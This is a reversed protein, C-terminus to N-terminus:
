VLRINAPWPAGSLVNSMSANLALQEATFTALRQRAAKNSMGPKTTLAELLTSAKTKSLDKRNYLQFIIEIERDTLDKTFALVVIYARQKETAPDPNSVAEVLSEWSAPETM